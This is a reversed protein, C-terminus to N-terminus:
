LFILYQKSILFSIINNEFSTFLKSINKIIITTIKNTISIAAINKGTSGSEIKKQDAIM